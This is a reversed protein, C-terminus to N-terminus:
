YDDGVRAVFSPGAAKVRREVRTGACFLMWDDRVVHANSSDEFFVVPKGIGQAYGIEWACDRGIPGFVWLEDCQDIHQKDLLAASAKDARIDPTPIFAFVREEAVKDHIAQVNFKEPKLPTCIYVLKRNSM